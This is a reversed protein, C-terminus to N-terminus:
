SSPAQKSAGKAKIETRGAAGEPSNREGEDGEVSVECSSAKISVRPAAVGGKTEGGKGETTTEGEKAEDGKRGGASGAGSLGGPFRLASARSQGGNEGGKSTGTEGDKEESMAHSYVGSVERSGIPVNETDYNDARPPPPAHVHKDRGQHPTTADAPAKLTEWLNRVISRRRTSKGGTRGGEELDKELCAAMEGEEATANPSGEGLVVARHLNRVAGHVTLLGKEDLTQEKMLVSRQLSREHSSNFVDEDFDEGNLKYVKKQIDVLRRDTSNVKTDLKTVETRLSYLLRRIEMADLASAQGRLRLIGDVFEETGISGDGNFDLLVFVSEAQGPDIGLSGLRYIMAPDHMLKRFEDLTLYGNGDTDWRRMVDALFKAERAKRKERQETEAEDHVRTEQIVTEVFLATLINLLGFSTGAVFIVFFVEMGPLILGAPRAIGNAWSELTMVQFLSFMSGLISGFYEEVFDDDKDKEFLGTIFTGVTFLFVLILVMVWALSHMTAGISLILVRLPRLTGFLRVARLIRFVRFIALTGLEDSGESFGGGAMSMWLFVADVLSVLTVAFDFLHFVSKFYQSRFATVKCIVELVWIPVFVCGDVIHYTYEDPYDTYLGIIISNALIILGALYEYATSAFVACLIKRWRSMPGGKGNRILESDRVQRRAGVDAEYLMATVHARGAAGAHM